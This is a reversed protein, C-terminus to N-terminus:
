NGSGFYVYSGWYFPHAREEGSEIAELQALRLARAAGAEQLRDYFASFLKAGSAAEIDWLGLTIGSAGQAMFTQTFGIIGAGRQIDGRGSKCASLVVQAGDFELGFAQQAYLPGDTLALFSLDPRENDFYGHTYFHVLAYKKLGQAAFNSFTAKDDWLEDTISFNKRINETEVELFSSPFPRFIVPLHKYEDFQEKAIVLATSDTSAVRQGPKRKHRVFATASPYYSIAHHRILYDYDSWDKKTSEPVLLGFPLNYLEADPGIILAKDRLMGSRLLTDLLAQHLASSLTPSKKAAGTLMRMDTSPVGKEAALIFDRQFKAITDKIPDAPGLNFAKFDEKTLVFAHARQGFFYEVFAEGAELQSQIEEVSPLTDPGVSQASLILSRIETDTIQLERRLSDIVHYDQESQTPHGSLEEIKNFLLARRKKLTDPVQESNISGLALLEDFTRSKSQQVYRFAKRAKGLALACEVAGIYSNYRQGLVRRTSNLGIDNSLIDNEVVSIGQEFRELAKETEGKKLHVYGMQAYVENLIGYRRNKRVITEAKAYWELAKDGDGELQYSLGMRATLNGTAEQDNIKGALELGRLSYHRGSDPQNTSLYYNAFYVDSLMRRLDSDAAKAIEHCKLFFHFAEGSRSRDQFIIEGLVGYLEFFDKESGQIEAQISKLFEIGGRVFREADEYENRLMYINTTTLIANVYILAKNSYDKIYEDTGFRLFAVYDFNRQAKLEEWAKLSYKLAFDSNNLLTYTVSLQNYIAILFQQYELRELMAYAAQYYNAKEPAIRNALSDIIYYTGKVVKMKIAAQGMAATVPVSGSQPDRLGELVEDKFLLLFNLADKYQRANLLRQVQAPVKQNLIDGQFFTFSFNNSPFNLADKMEERKEKPFSTKLFDEVSGSRNLYAKMVEALQMGARHVELASATQGMQAFSTGLQQLIKALAILEFNNWVITRLTMDPSLPNVRTKDFLNERYAYILIDKQIQQNRAARGYQGSVFHNRNVPELLNFVLYHKMGESEGTLNLAMKMTQMQQRTTPDKVQQILAPSASFLSDVLRSLEQQDHTLLSDFFGASLEPPQAGRPYPQALLAGATLLLSLFIATPKLM